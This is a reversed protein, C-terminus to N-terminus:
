KGGKPWKWSMFIQADMQDTTLWDLEESIHINILHWVRNFISHFEKLFQSHNTTSLTNIIKSVPHGSHSSEPSFLPSCASNLTAGVLWLPKPETRRPSGLHCCGRQWLWGLEVIRRHVKWYNASENTNGYNTWNTWLHCKVRQWSSCSCPAGGRHPGPRRSSSEGGWPARRRRSRKLPRSQVPSCREQQDHLRLRNSVLPPPWLSWFVFLANQFESLSDIQCGVTLGRGQTIWWDESALPTLRGICHVALWHQQLSFFTVWHVPIQAGGLQSWHCRTVQNFTCIFNHKKSLLLITNGKDCQIRYYLKTHPYNQWLLVQQATATVSWTITVATVQLVKWGGEEDRIQQCTVIRQSFCEAASLGRRSGGM